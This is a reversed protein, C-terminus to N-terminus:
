SIIQNPYIKTACSTVRTPMHDLCTGATQCVFNAVALQLFMIFGPIPNQTINSPHQSNSSIISLTNTSSKSFIPLQGLSIELGDTLEEVLISGSLM